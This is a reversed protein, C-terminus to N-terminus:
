VPVLKSKKFGNLVISSLIGAALGWFASSVGLFSLNSATVLITIIAPEKHSEDELSQKLCSVLTGLLALGTVAFMVEKPIIFLLYVINAGFLAVGFWCLGGFVAAKYRQGPLPSVEENACIAATFATMTISYCGLPAFLLNVLATSSLLSSAHPKYGYTNLVTFGPITQSTLTVIYLPIGVSILTKWTFLPATWQPSVMKFAFNEVHFLGLLHALCVGVILVFVIVTRPFSRKGLLYILVMCGVLLSQHQMSSFVDVGFHFIIGALMAATIARPIYLIIKDLLGSLGTLLMLFASFLFVGIAEGMSMQVVSSALLAAAPTSWGILIPMRYYMSLGICSFGISIGLAFLWSSLEAASAGAMTASQVILMISSSFGVLVAIFGATMESFSFYSRM